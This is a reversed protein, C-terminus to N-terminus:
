SISNTKKICISEDLMKKEDDFWSDNIKLEFYRKIAKTINASSIMVEIAYEGPEKIFSQTNPKVALDFIFLIKSRFEKNAQILKNVDEVKIIYGLDCHKFTDPCINAMVPTKYYSWVLNLPLFDKEEKYTGNAKKKFLKTVLMEVNEARDNGRNWIKFRFYYCDCIKAGTQMNKFDTKHCDPPAVDIEIDLNPKTLLKRIKDQFIAVIALIITGIAVLWNALLSNSFIQQLFKIEEAMNNVLRDVKILKIKQPLPPPNFIVVM